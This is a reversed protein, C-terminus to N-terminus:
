EYYSWKLHFANAECGGHQATRSLTSLQRFKDSTTETTSILATTKPDGLQRLPNGSGTAAEYNNYSYVSPQKSAVGGCKSVVVTGRSTVYYTGRPDSINGTFM